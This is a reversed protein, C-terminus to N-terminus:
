PSCLGTKGGSVERVFTDGAFIFVYYYIIGMTLFSSRLFAIDCLLLSKPVNM